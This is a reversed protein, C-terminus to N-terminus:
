FIHGIDIRKKFVPWFDFTLLNLVLVFIKDCPINMHFIFARAIVIWFNAAFNFNKFLLDFEFTLTMLNFNSTGM